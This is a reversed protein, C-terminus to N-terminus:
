RWSRHAENITEQGDYEDIEWEIDDPIEVVRLKAHVGNARSGLTEVVKVLNPNDRKIGWSNFEEKKMGLEDIAKPSLGFGGYCVNIVVKKSM